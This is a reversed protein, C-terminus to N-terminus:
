MLVLEIDVLFSNYGKHIKTIRKRGDFNCIPRRIM